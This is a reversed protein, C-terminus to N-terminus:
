LTADTGATRHLSDAVLISADGRSGSGEDRGGALGGGLDDCLGSGLEQAARLEGSAM